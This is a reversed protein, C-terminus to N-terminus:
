FWRCSSDQVCGLVLILMQKSLEKGVAKGFNFVLSDTKMEGFKAALDEEGTEFLMDNKYTDVKKNNGKAALQV